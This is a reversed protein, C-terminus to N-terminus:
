TEYLRKKRTILQIFYKDINDLFRADSMGSRNFMIVSGKELEPYLRIECYFGAGGGAHCYYTNGDLEGKFWSLCMNSGKGNNLMNEEFLLNKYKNSIIQNESKLLEQIYAVFSKGTGLLGGYSVGNVYITKYADWKGETGIRFKSKDFLFGLILNSFGIRKHYGKAHIKSNHVKFDLRAPQIGIKQIINKSIYETYSEGSVEEIIMGLFVYGLNSYAFKENPRKKVKKNKEFVPIFYEKYDFSDHEEATHVWKLPIPNPIGSSHSLLQKITITKPYPFDPLYTIVPDDLKLLKQEALQVIALATFTKTVSWANFTTEDNIKEQNKIDAFGGNFSHIISNTDFFYYQIGPTKNKSLQENLLGDVTKMNNEIKDTKCSLNTLILLVLITQSLNKM